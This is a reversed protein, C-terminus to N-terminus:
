RGGTEGIYAWPCTASLTEEFEWFHTSVAPDFAETDRSAQNVFGSFVNNPKYENLAKIAANYM